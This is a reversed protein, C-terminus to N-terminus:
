VRVDSSSPHTTGVTGSVRPFRDHRNCSAHYSVERGLYGIGFFSQSSEDDLIKVEPICCYRGNKGLSLLLALNRCCM